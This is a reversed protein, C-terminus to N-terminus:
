AHARKLVARALTRQGPSTRWWARQAMRLADHSSRGSTPRIPGADRTHRGQQPVMAPSRLALPVCAGPCTQHVDTRNHHTSLETHTSCARAEELPAADCTPMYDPMGPATFIKEWDLEAIPGAMAAAIEPDGEAKKKFYDLFFDRMSQSTVTKGGFHAFYEKLFPQFKADGGVLKELLCFLSMGKIYPVTSFADDPDEGGSLDPILRAISSSAGLYRSM